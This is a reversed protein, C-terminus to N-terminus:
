KDYTKSNSDTVNAAGWNTLLMSFYVSALIMFLHFYFMKRGDAEENYPLDAEEGSEEETALIPEAANRILAQDQNQERKRFSIYILTVLLVVVGITITIGTDQANDWTNCSGNTDNTLGDWCLYTIYCNVVSSTLLALYPNCGHEVYNTISLITFCIGIVLTFTILFIELGCGTDNTFWYYNLVTTTLAVVWFLGSFFFL